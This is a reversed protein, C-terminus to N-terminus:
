ACCAMQQDGYLTFVKCQLAQRLQNGKNSPQHFAAFGANLPMLDQQGHCIGADRDATLNFRINPIMEASVDDRRDDRSIWPQRGCWTVTTRNEEVIGQPRSGDGKQGDSMM